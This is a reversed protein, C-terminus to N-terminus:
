ASVLRGGRLFGHWSSMLISGAGASCTDGQKAVTVLPPEGTRPWCRHLRDTKRTCNSARSDVDWTQRNPLVVYLHEGPCNDWTWCRGDDLKSWCPLLFMDGPEPVGSPSDYLRAQFVQRTASAPAAAGCHECRTPWASEPHDAPSGGSVNLSGEPPQLVDRLRAMANHFGRVGHGGANPCDEGWYRRLSVRVGICRILRTNM